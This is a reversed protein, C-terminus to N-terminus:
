PRVWEYINAALTEVRLDTMLTVDVAVEWDSFANEGPHGRLLERNLTESLGVGLIRLEREKPLRKQYAGMLQDVASHVNAQAGVLQSFRSKESPNLVVGFGIEEASQVLSAAKVAKPTMFPESFERAKARHAADESVGLSKQLQSVTFDGFGKLPHGIVNALVRLGARAQVYPCGLDQVYYDGEREGLPEAFPNHDVPTFIGSGNETIFPDTWDLPQLIPELQARDCQTFLIVPVDLARVETLMSLLQAYSEAPTELSLVESSNQLMDDFAILVIKKTM